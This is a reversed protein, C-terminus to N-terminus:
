SSAVSNLSTGWNAFADRTGGCTGGSNLFASGTCSPYQIYETSFYINGGSWVAWTYDGWRPRYFANYQILQYESFGDQPSQGSASIYITGGRATTSTKSIWAYGSSPYMNPSTVTFAVLANGSPGVGISPFLLQTGSASIYGQTSLSVSSGAANVVWFAVGMHQSSRSNGQTVITNVAGWLAGQAYTVTDWMGDGNSALEGVHCAGVCGIGGSGTNSFLLSGDPIPGQGQPVLLGINVYFEVGTMLHETLTVSPTKSSISATNSFSWVAIRNDGAGTFDLSSLAWATGSSSSDYSSTTPSDAPDVSYFCYLGGSATCGVGGGDPPNVTLGINFHVFGPSPAGAAMANKDLLYVQAGNFYGTSAFVSFENTSIIVTNADAGLLPQDGFCPCNTALSDSTVNFMYVNFSTPSTGTSALVFEAGYTNPGLPFPGSNSFVGAGGLYLFSIFWHGTGMDYLCRPDSLIYGGGVSSVGFQQSIPYGVLDALPTVGSVPAFTTSNYTQVALNVAELAYGNGVCLGQDPPEVDLPGFGSISNSQGSDFANLGKASTAGGSGSLSDSSASPIQSASQATTPKSYDHGLPAPSTAQISSTKLSSTRLATKGILKLKGINTQGEHGVSKSPRSSASAGSFGAIGTTLAGSLLLIALLALSALILKKKNSFLFSFKMNAFFMQFLILRDLNSRLVSIGYRNDIYRFFRGNNFNSQL